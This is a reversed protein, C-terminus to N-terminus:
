QRCPHDCSKKAERLLNYESHIALSIALAEIECSQWIRCQPKLKSSHFRVPVLEKDKVAYVTHGIGPGSLAADTKIVLQDDPHPLYLTHINKVHRKAERFRQILNNDWVIHDGSERGAVAEELPALIRSVAPAAM